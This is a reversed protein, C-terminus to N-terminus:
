GHAMLKTIKKKKVRKRKKNFGSIGSRWKGVKIRM